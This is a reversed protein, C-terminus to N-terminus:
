SFLKIFMDVVFVLVSSTVLIALAMALIRVPASVNSKTNKKNAM